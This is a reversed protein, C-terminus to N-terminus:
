YRHFETATLIWNNQLYDKNIKQSIPYVFFSINHPLSLFGAKKIQKIIPHNNSVNLQVLDTKFKKEILSVSEKFNFNFDETLINMIQLEKLKGRKGHRLIFLVNEYKFLSYEYLPYTFYRWKIFDYTHNPILKDNLVYPRIIKKYSELDQLNNNDLKNIKNPVFGSKISHINIIVNLKNSFKLFNMVTNVPIFNLKEFPLYSTKNPFNFIYDINENEAFDIIKKTLLSFLGKKQHLPHTMTQYSILCNLVKNNQLYQYKGFTIEAAISQTNNCIAIFSIVEGFPSSFYKWNLWELTDPKRKHIEAATQLLQLKLENDKSDLKIINYTEAITM